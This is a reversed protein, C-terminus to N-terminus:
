VGVIYDSNDTVWTSTHLVTSDDVNECRVGYKVNNFKIVDGAELVFSKQNFIRTTSESQSGAEPTGGQNANFACKRWYLEKKDSDITKGDAMVKSTINSGNRYISVRSYLDTMDNITSDDPYALLLTVAYLTSPIRKRVQGMSLLICSFRAYATNAPTTFEYYRPEIYEWATSYWSNTERSLLTKNSDYYCIRYVNCAGLLGQSITRTNGQFGQVWKYTTNASVPFYERNLISNDGAVENGSADFYYGQIIEGTGIDPSDDHTVTVTFTATKTQYTVTITSTGAELTGSLEYETVTETSSDAYTATVVLFQKLIALNDKDYIVNTSQTFTASISAPVIDTYLTAYLNNYYAQGNPDDWRAIHRFCALLAAKADNSFPEIAELDARLGSIEEAVVKNQIPNTSNDDLEDDITPLLNDVQAKTYVANADAKLALADGVAGADAAKGATNLNADVQSVENIAGVVTKSTTNLADITASSFKNTLWSWLGGLLVTKNESSDASDAILIVDSDAPTNKRTYSTFRAM